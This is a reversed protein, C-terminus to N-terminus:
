GNRKMSEKRAEGALKDAEKNQARPIWKVVTAQLNSLEKECKDKFKQYKSQRIWGMSNVQNCVFRSDVHFIVKYEYIFNEEVYIRAEKIANYLGHYESTNSNGLSNIPISKRLVAKGDVEIYVGCGMPENAAKVNRCSGDSYVKLVTM